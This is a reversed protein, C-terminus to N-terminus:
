IASVLQLTHNVSVAPTDSQHTAMMMQTLLEVSNGQSAEGQRRQISRQPGLCLLRVPYEQQAM